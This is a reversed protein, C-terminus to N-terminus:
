SRLLLTPRSFVCVIMFGYANDTDYQDEFLCEAIQLYNQLYM